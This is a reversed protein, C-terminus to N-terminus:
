EDAVIEVDGFVFALGTVTILFSSYTGLKIFYKIIRAFCVKCCKCCGGEKGKVYDMMYKGFNRAQMVLAFQMSIVSISSFIADEHEQESAKITFLISYAFSFTVTWILLMCFWFATGPKFDAKLDKATVQLYSWQAGAYLADQAEEPLLSWANEMEADEGTFSPAEAMQAEIDAAVGDGDDGAAAGAAAEADDGDQDGGKKKEQKKKKAPQRARKNRASPNKRTGCCSHEKLWKWLALFRDPLQIVILMMALIFSWPTKGEDASGEKPTIEDLGEEMMFVIATIDWAVSAVKIVKYMRRGWVGTLVKRAMKLALKEPDVYESCDETSSPVSM